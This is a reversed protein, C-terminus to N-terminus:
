SAQRFAPNPPTCLASRHRRWKTVADATLAHDVLSQARMGSLMNHVQTPDILPYDVIFADEVMVQHETDALVHVHFFPRGKTSVSGTM